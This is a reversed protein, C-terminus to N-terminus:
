FSFGFGLVRVVRITGVFLLFSFCVFGSVLVWFTFGLCFLFGWMLSITTGVEHDVLVGKM